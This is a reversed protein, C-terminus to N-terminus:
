PVRHALGFPANVGVGVVIQDHLRYAAYGAPIFKNEAINGEDSGAFGLPPVPNLKVDIDPFIGTGVAEIEGRRVDALNAPNWFISSLSGGAAIGAFSAGQGYTSQTRVAFAAAHAGSTTFLSRLM